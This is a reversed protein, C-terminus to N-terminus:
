PFLPRASLRDNDLEAKLREWSAEDSASACRDEHLWETLLRIMAENEQAGSLQDQEGITHKAM